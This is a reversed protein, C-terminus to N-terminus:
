MVKGSRWLRVLNAYKERISPSKNFAEEMIDAAASLGRYGEQKVKKLAMQALRQGDEHNLPSHVVGLVSKSMESSLCNKPKSENHLSQKQWGELADLLERATSYRKLPDIALCKLVVKELSSDIAPNWSSPLTLEDDFVQQGSWGFVPDVKYPLRDTLLLYLTVGLAWVDGACSDSKLDQFIEPPKFALSGAATVLLTLPNVKKALGFDSVRARIGESEYGILINQPKIDRHVIPPNKKHAVSLGRCIQCMIDITENLPVVDTGYSQWFRDLSGGSVNEMTFYGCIGEPTEFVNADFVQVINPHGIKSLLKAEGLMEDIDARNMGIRKFVKMAQRGMFQHNVRWVEAFAGEGLLKEVEYTDRICQGEKLLPM